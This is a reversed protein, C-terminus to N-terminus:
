RPELEEEIESVRLKAETLSMGEQERLLKVAQIIQGAAIAEEISAAAPDRPDEGMFQRLREALHLQVDDVDTTTTLTLPLVGEKLKLIIQRNPPHGQDGIPVSVLIRVVSSFPVEGGKARLARRRRWVILKLRRDFAFRVREFFLVFLLAFFGCGALSGHVQESEWGLPQRYLQFAGIMSMLVFGVLCLKTFGSDRSEVILLDSSPQHIEM